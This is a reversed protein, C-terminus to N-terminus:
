GPQKHRSTDPQGNLMYIVSDNSERFQWGADTLMQKLQPLKRRGCKFRGNTGDPRRILVSRKDLVLEKVEVKPVTWTRLGQITLSDPLVRLSPFPFHLMGGRKTPIYAQLGQLFTGSDVLPDGERNGLQPM